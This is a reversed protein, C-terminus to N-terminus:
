SDSRDTANTDAGKQKIQEVIARLQEPTKSGVEHDLLLGYVEKESLGDFAAVYAVSARTKASVETKIVPM